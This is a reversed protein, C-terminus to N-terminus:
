KNELMANLMFLISKFCQLQFATSRDFREPYVYTANALEEALVQKESMHNMPYFGVVFAFVTSVFNIRNKKPADPFYRSVSAFLLHYFDVSNRRFETLKELSCNVEIVNFLQGLLSIMMGHDNFLSTLLMAYEEVTVTAYSNMVDIVAKEWKLEEILLLELLAEEKTKFYGYIAQRTISTMESVAKFNVAGYGGQRYLVACADLIEKKRTAVQEPTRARHFTLESSQEQGTNM